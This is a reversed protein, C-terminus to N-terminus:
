RQNALRASIASDQADTPPSSPPAGPPRDGGRHRLPRRGGCRGVAPASRENIVEASDFLTVIGVRDVLRLLADFLTGSGTPNPVEVLWWPTDVSLDVGAPLADRVATVM